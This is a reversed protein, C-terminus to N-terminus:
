KCQLILPPHQMVKSDAVWCVASLKYTFCFNMDRPWEVWMANRARPILHQFQAFCKWVSVEAEEHKSAAPRIDLWYSLGLCAGAGEYMLPKELLGPPCPLHQAGKVSHQLPCLTRKWQSGQEVVGCSGQSLYMPCLEVSVMSFIDPSGLRKQSQSEASQLLETLYLCTQQRVPIRHKGMAIERDSAERPMSANNQSGQRSGHWLNGSSGKHVLHIGHLNNRELFFIQGTESTGPALGTCGNCYLYLKLIDTCSRTQMFSLPLLFNDGFLFDRVLNHIHNGHSILGSALRAWQSDPCKVM